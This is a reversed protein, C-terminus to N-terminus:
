IYVLRNKGPLTGSVNDEVLILHAAYLHLARSLQDPENLVLAALMWQELTARTQCQQVDVGLGSAHLMPDRSPGLSAVALHLGELDGPALLMASKLM